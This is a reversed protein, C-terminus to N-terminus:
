PWRAKAPACRWAPCRRTSTSSEAGNSRQMCNGPPRSASPRPIGRGGGRLVTRGGFDRRRGGPGCRRDPPQSLHDDGGRRGTARIRGTGRGRAGARANRRRRVRGHRSRGGGRAGGHAPGHARARHIWGNGQENGEGTIAHSRIFQMGPQGAPAGVRDPWGHGTRHRGAPWDRHCARAGADRDGPRDRNEDTRM